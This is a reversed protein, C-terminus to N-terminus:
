FLRIEFIEVFYSRQQFFHRSIRRLYDTKRATGSRCTREAFAVPSARIYVVIDDAFKVGASIGYDVPVDIGFVPVRCRPDATNYVSGHGACFGTEAFFVFGGDYEHM